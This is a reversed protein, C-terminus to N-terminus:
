YSKPLGLVHTGIYGLILENTVPATKFLRLIPYLTILDTGLEFAYGGFAQMAVDLAELGAESALLKAANALELGKGSRDHLAAAAYVMSRAAELHAFARAMPFQLGQHSGIPVDFVRRTKAYEVAKSLAFDGLGVSIAAIMLREVNLGEFLTRYGEGERGILQDSSARVSDLYVAYQWEPGKMDIDLPEMRIGPDSTELVFLSIGYRKDGVEDYRKTRAVLLMYDSERAGSIFVKQGTIVYGDGDRRALTSIRWTNSGAEPETLAFSMRRGETCTPTVFRRIQEETGASLVIHRSFHTVLFQLVPLGELALAEQTLVAGRLGFGSGGYREPVGVGTLGQRRMEEWLEDPPERRRWKELWYSRGFVRAVSRATKLLLGEEDTLTEHLPIRM